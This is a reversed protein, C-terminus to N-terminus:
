NMRVSCYGSKGEALVCLRSCLECVVRNGDAARWWRAEPLM